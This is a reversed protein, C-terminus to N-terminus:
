ERWVQVGTVVYHHDVGGLDLHRAGLEAVLLVRVVAAVGTAQPRTGQLAGLLDVRGERQGVRHLPHELAVGETRIHEGTKTDVGTGLMPVLCLLRLGQGEVLLSVQLNASKNRRPVPRRLFATARTRM